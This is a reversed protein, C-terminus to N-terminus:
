IMFRIMKDSVGEDDINRGSRHNEIKTKNAAPKAHLRVEALELLWLVKWVQGDEDGALRRLRSLKRASHWLRPMPELRGIECDTRDSLISLLKDYVQMVSLKHM